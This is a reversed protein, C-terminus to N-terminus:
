GLIGQVTGIVGSRESYNAQTRSAAAKIRYGYAERAANNITTQVDLEAMGASSAQVDVPTGRTQDVGSAAYMNRQTAIIQSAKRRIQGAEFEGRILADDAAQEYLQANFRETAATAQGSQYKDWESLLTGAVAAIAQIM